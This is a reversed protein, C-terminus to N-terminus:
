NLCVEQAIFHCLVHSNLMHKDFDDDNDMLLTERWFYNLYHQDKPCLLFWPDNSSMYHVVMYKLDEDSLANIENDATHPKYESNLLERAMWKLHPTVLLLSPKLMLNIDRDDTLTELLEVAAQLGTVSLDTDTSLRNSYPGSGPGVAVNPHATSCLPQGDRGTVGTNFANNFTNWATVEETQRASRSIASPVRSMINYLDDVYLEHTIRVGLAYPNHTYTQLSAAQFPDDYTIAQGEAKSVMKGLGAVETDQEYARKSTRMNFVKDYELPYTNYKQFTADWLGPMLLHSFASQRGAM